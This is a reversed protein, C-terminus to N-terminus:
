LLKGRLIVQKLNLEKDLILLDAIKGESISGKRDYIGVTEAPNKSAMQCAAELPIGLSVCNKVGDLLCSTGSAITGDELYQGGNKKIIKKGHYFYEGDPYGTGVGSDTIMNIKDRGKVNYTIKIVAPDIHFFDCILESKVDNNYLFAGVTGPERHKLPRMANYMHTCQSVGWEIGRQAEKFTANTHGCSMVVGNKVGYKIVEEAGPLEPAITMIKVMGEGEKILSEMESLEPKRINHSQHAGKFIESFFPGELHIGEFAACNDIEKKYYKKLHNIVDTLREALTASITPLLTTTGVSAEYIGIKEVTDEEYELYSTGVAAHMHTDIFGPVVYGGEADIVIDDGLDKGIKKIKNEKVLIEGDIFKFNEDLIKGGKILMEYVREAVKM